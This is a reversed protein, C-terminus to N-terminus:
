WQVIMLGYELMKKVKNKKLIDRSMFEVPVGLADGVFFGFLSGKIRESEEINNNKKSFMNIM